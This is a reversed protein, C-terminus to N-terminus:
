VGMMPDQQQPQPQGQPVPQQSQGVSANHREIGMQFAKTAVENAQEPAIVGTAGLIGVLIKIVERGALAMVRQDLKAGSSTAAEYVQKLVPLVATVIAEVPDGQKAMTAIDEANQEDLLVQSAQKIILNVMKIEQESFPAQQQSAPAPAPAPAPSQNLLGAM